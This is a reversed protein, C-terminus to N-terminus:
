TPGDPEQLRAALYADLRQDARCQLDITRFQHQDGAVQAAVRVEAPEEGEGMCVLGLALRSGPERCDVLVSAIEEVEARGVVLLAQMAELVRGALLVHEAHEMAVETWFIVQQEVS